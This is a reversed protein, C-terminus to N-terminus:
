NVKEPNASISDAALVPGLFVISCQSLHCKTLNLKLNFEKLRKFVMAIRDLMEDFSGVFVCINDLCLLLKVFQDHELYMKMLRGFSSGFNSLFFTM